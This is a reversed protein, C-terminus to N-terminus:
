DEVLRGHPLLQLVRPVCRGSHRPGSCWPAVAAAAVYSDGKKFVDHIIKSNTARANGHYGQFRRTPDNENILGLMEGPENPACVICFGDPGRVVEETEDNFKVIVNMKLLRMITGM